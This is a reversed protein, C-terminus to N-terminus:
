IHRILLEHQPNREIFRKPTEIYDDGPNYQDSRTRTRILLPWVLSRRVVSADDLRADWRVKAIPPVQMFIDFNFLRCPVHGVILTEGTSLNEIQSQAGSDHDLKLGLVKVTTLVSASHKNKVRYM